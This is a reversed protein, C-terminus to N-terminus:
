GSKKPVWLILGNETKEVRYKPLVKPLNIRFDVASARSLIEPAKHPAKSLAEVKAYYFAPGPLAGATVSKKAREMIESAWPARSLIAERAHYTLVAGETHRAKTTKTLDVAQDYFKRGLEVEGARYFLLGLNALAHVQDGVDQIRSERLDRTINSVWDTLEAGAQEDTFAKGGSMLAYVRNNLICIERAAALRLERETSRIATEYDDLLSAVYTVNAVPEPAFPEDAMWEQALQLAKEMDRETYATRFAAEYALRNNSILEELHFGNRIKGEAWKMQALANETPDKLSQHFREKAKKLKGDQVDITGVASALESLHIPAFAKAELFSQAQRWFKPSRESAQATALEASILWPDSMTAGSRILLRHAEDPKGHATLLKSTSRLLWRNNPALALAQWALREAKERHGSTAQLRALDMLVVPNRPEVLLQRRLQAMEERRPADHGTGIGEQEGIPHELQKRIQDALYQPSGAGAALLTKAAVALLDKRGELIAANALDAAVGISQQEALTSAKREIGSEWNTVGKRARLPLM